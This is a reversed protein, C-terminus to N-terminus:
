ILVEYCIRHEKFENPSLRNLLRNVNGRLRIALEICEILDERNFCRNPYLIKVLGSALRKIAKEERITLGEFRVNEDIMHIFNQMHLQHFVESLYDAVIGYGKALHKNSDMIKPLRFGEIYGHIRDLLASDQMFSPLSRLPDYDINGIFVLSCDSYAKKEGREFFGDVMYDKLKAIVEDNALRLKSVEDFVLCDRLAIEGASKSHINYFLMPATVKGGAIVRTHHSINRYLYTKGTAKPGLELMNCNPEVLPILRSLLLLRQEHDYADPNLGISKIMLMIWEEKDFRSRKRAYDALDVNSVQFPTFRTIVIESRKDKSVYYLTAMGWLGSRLLDINDDLLSALIKADNISLRPIRVNYRNHKILTDVKFEDILTYSGKSMLEHLVKDKDRMEPFHINIFDNLRKIDSLSSIGFKAILYEAIFRPLRSIEQTNVIDKRVAYENFISIIKDDQIDM